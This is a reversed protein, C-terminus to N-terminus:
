KLLKRATKTSQEHDEPTSGTDVGHDRALRHIQHLSTDLLEAARSVSIREQELLNMVYDEVGTYILRRLATARDTREDRAKSDALELVKEPIRLPYSRGMKVAEEGM